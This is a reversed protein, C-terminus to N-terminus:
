IDRKEQVTNECLCIYAVAMLMVIVTSSVMQAAMCFIFIMLFPIYNVFKIEQNVKKGTSIMEKIFWGFVILGPIGWMVILEQLGNHPISAGPFMSSLKEVYKYYGVGYFALRSNSLIQSNYFSMIDNRGTSIDDANFRSIILEMVTPFAESIIYFIIITLISIAFIYKIKKGFDKQTLLFLLTFIAGCIIFKKSMTLLGFVVLLVLMISDIFTTEKKYNIFCLCEISSLCILSLINPNFGVTLEDMNVGYGFRYIGSFLLNVQYHAQKLQMLLIIFSICITTFALTRAMSNYEIDEYSISVVFVCFFLEVFLRIIEVPAFDGTLGHFTEWILLLVLTFVIRKVKIKHSKDGFRFAYGIMAIILAYKTQFANLMPIFCVCMTIIDSKEGLLVVLTSFFLFVVAPIVVGVYDRLFLMVIMCILVPPFIHFRNHLNLRTVM